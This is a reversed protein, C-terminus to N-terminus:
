AHRRRGKWFGISALRPDSPLAHLKVFVAATPGFWPGNDFYGLAGVAPSILRLYLGRLRIQAQRSLHDTTTVPGVDTRSYRESSLIAM